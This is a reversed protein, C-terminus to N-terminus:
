EIVEDARQHFILPEMKPSSLPYADNRHNSPIKGGTITQAKL